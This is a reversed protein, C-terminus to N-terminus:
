FHCVTYKFLEPMSNHNLLFTHITRFRVATLRNPKKLLLNLVTVPNNRMSFYHAVVWCMIKNRQRHM